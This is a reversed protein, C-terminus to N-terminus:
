DHIVSLVMCVLRPIGLGQVLQSQAGAMGVGNMEAPTHARLEQPTFGQPTLGPTYAGAYGPTPAHMANQRHDADREYDFENEGSGHM